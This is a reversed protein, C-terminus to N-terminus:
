TTTTGPRIVQFGAPVISFFVRIAPPADSYPIGGPSEPVCRVHDIPQLPWAAKLAARTAHLRELREINRDL